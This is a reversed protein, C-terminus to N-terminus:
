VISANDFVRDEVEEVPLDRSEDAGEGGGRQRKGWKRL